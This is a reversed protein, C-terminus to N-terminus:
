GDLDDTDDDDCSGPAALDLIADLKTALTDPDLESGDAPATAEDAIEDLTDQMSEIKQKLRRNESQLKDQATGTTSGAAGTPSGGRARTAGQQNTRVTRQM